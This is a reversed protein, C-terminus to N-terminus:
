RMMGHLHPGDGAHPDWRREGGMFLSEDREHLLISGIFDRLMLLIDEGHYVVVNPVAFFHQVRLMEGTNRCPVYTDVVITAQPDYTMGGFMVYIDLKEGGLFSRIPDRVELDYVVELGPFMTECWERDVREDVM